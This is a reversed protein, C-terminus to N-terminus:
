FGVVEGLVRACSGPQDAGGMTLALVRSSFSMPGDSDRGLLGGRAVEFLEQEAPHRVLRLEALELWNRYQQDPGFVVRRLNICPGLTNLLGVYEWRIGRVFTTDLAREPLTRLAAEVDRIAPPQAREVSREASRRGWALSRGDGHGTNTYLTELADGGTRAITLGILNDLVTPGEDAMLLGMSIVERIATDAAAVRGRSAELAALALHASAAHRLQGITPMSLEAFTIDSPLPLSWRVGAIDLEEARALRSIEAHAPHAAVSELRARQEADLGQGIRDVVGQFWEPIAGDVTDAAPFWPEPYSRAPPLVGEAARYSRGVFILTHLTAGAEAASITTDPALRFARLPEVAAFRSVTRDFQPITIQAMVPIIAASFILTFVPVFAAATAVAVGVYSARLTATARGGGAPISEPAAVGPAREAMAQQWSRIEESVLEQSWSQRFWRKRCKRLIGEEWGYLVVATAAAAASPALTFLVVGWPGLVGRAGLVVSLGFGLSLWLAAFLALGGVAIRVSAMRQRAGDSLLRYARVGQLLFGTDRRLDTAVLAVVRWHHGQNVAEAARRLLRTLVIYGGLLIPMGVIGLLFALWLSDGLPGLSWPGQEAVVAWLLPLILIAGTVLWRAAGYADGQLRALGPPPWRLPSLTGDETAPDSPDPATEPDQTDM